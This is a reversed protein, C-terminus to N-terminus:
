SELGCLRAIHFVTSSALIDQPVYKQIASQVSSPSLLLLLGLALELFHLAWLSLMKCLCVGEDLSHSDVPCELALVMMKAHTDQAEESSSLTVSM